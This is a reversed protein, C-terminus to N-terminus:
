PTCMLDTFECTSTDCGAPSPNCTNDDACYFPSESPCTIFQGSCCNAGLQGAACRNAMGNCIFPYSDCYTGTSWCGTADGCNVPYEPPCGNTGGRSDPTVYGSCVRAMDAYADASCAIMMSNIVGEFGTRFATERQACTGHAGPQFWPMGVPDALGCFTTFAECLDGKDLYGVQQVYAAFIGAQCDAHLETSITPLNLNFIGLRAQNLHGWEHALVIVAAFDGSQQVLKNWLNADYGFSDDAGCYFANQPSYPGCAGSGGAGGDYVCMTAPGTGWLTQLLAMVSTALPPLDFCQNTGPWASIADYCGGRNDGSEPAENWDFEGSTGGGGDTSGGGSTNGDTSGGGGSGDSSGGGGQDSSGGCDSPCAASEGSECAGNGCVPDQPPAFSNTTGDSAAKECGLAAIAYM